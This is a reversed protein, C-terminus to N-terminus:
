TEHFGFRQHCQRAFSSEHWNITPGSAPHRWIQPYNHPDLAGSCMRFPRRRCQCAGGRTSRPASQGTTRSNKARSIEECKKSKFLDKILVPVLQFKDFRVACKWIAGTAAALLPKNTANQLLKVLPEIGDFKAVLQRTAEDEACKFIASACHMQLEENNSHLNTVLDEVMGSQRITARYSPDSACEQLTGVVPVLTLYKDEDDIKLLKALLPIAGARM